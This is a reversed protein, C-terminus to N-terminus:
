VANCYSSRVYHAVVAFLFLSCIADEKRLTERLNFPLSRLSLFIDTLSPESPVTLTCTHWSGALEYMNSVRRTGRLRVRCKVGVREREEMLENNGRIASQKTQLVRSAGIVRGQPFVRSLTSQLEFSRLASM